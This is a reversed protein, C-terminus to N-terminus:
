FKCHGGNNHVKQHFRAQNGKVPLDADTKDNKNCLHYYAKLVEDDLSEFGDISYYVYDDSVYLFGRLESGGVDKLDQYYLKGGNVDVGSGADASAIDVGEIYPGPGVELLVIRFM